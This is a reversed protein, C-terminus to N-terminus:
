KDRAELQNASQKTSESQINREDPPTLPNSAELQYQEVGVGFRDNNESCTNFNVLVLLAGLLNKNPVYDKQQQSFCQLLHQLEKAKLCTLSLDGSSSSLLCTSMHDTYGKTLFHTLIDVNDALFLEFMNDSRFILM